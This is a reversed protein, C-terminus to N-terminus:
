WCNVTKYAGSGIVRCNTTTPASVTSQPSLLKLGLNIFADSSRSNNQKKLQEAVQQNGQSQALAIQTAQQSKVDLEVLRLVCDAFKETAPAFGIAKCQEKKDKITFEIDIASTTNSLTTTTTKPEVKTIDNKGFTKGAMANEYKSIQNLFKIASPEKDLIFETAERFSDKIAVLKNNNTFKLATGKTLTKEQKDKKEFIFIKDYGRGGDWANYDAWGVFAYNEFFRTAYGWGSEGAFATDVPPLGPILNYFENAGMGVKIKNDLLSKLVKKEPSYTSCGSLLLGLIIIGLIKKM